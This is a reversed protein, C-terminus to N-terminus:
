AGFHDPQGPIVTWNATPDSILKRHSSRGTQAPYAPSCVVFGLAFFGAVRMVELIGVRTLLDGKRFDFFYLLLIYLISPAASLKLGLCFGLLM